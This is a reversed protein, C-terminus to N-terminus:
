QRGKLGQPGVCQLWRPRAYSHLQRRQHRCLLCLLFACRVLAATCLLLSWRCCTCCVCCACRCHLLLSRLVHCCRLRCRLLSPRTLWLCSCGGCCCCPCWFCCCCPRWFCLLRHQQSHLRQLAAQGGAFCTHRAATGTGRHQNTRQEGCEHKPTHRRGAHQAQRQPWAWRWRM